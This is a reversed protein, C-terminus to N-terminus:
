AQYIWLCRQPLMTDVDIHIFDKGIGLRTVGIGVFTRILDYREGSFVCRIDAAKGTLHASNPKGGVAANHEPCRYGSTIIVPRNLLKRAKELLHLLFQDVHVKGCGCPCAFEPEKFFISDNVCDVAL